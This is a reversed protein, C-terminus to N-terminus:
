PGAERESGRGPRAPPEEGGPAVVPPFLHPAFSALPAGSSPGPRRRGCGGRCQTWAVVSDLVAALLVAVVAGEEPRVPGALLACAWAGGTGWRM